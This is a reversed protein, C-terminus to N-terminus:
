NYSVSFSSRIAEPSIGLYEGLEEVTVKQHKQKNKALKIKRLIRRCHGLSYKTVKSVDYADMIIKTSMQM